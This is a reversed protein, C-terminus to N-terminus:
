PGAPLAYLDLAGPAMPSHHVRNTAAQSRTERANVPAGTNLNRELRPFSSSTVHLRLRHGTPVRYAISRLDITIAYARGPEALAPRTMGDRYRLRLAGEQINTSTGDPRVHALRAVFDTDPASTSVTLRVRLPGAIRLDDSLPDSTYVLVDRRAEVDRQDRPGPREAPDGTCCIPGGRSPVPDSPDYVFTDHSEAVPPAPSLRGDGGAGNAHGGSSLHWSTARAQPPPWSPADIWRNEGLMFFRFGASPEAPAPAGRLWHAFWDRYWRELPTHANAIPLEGFQYLGSEWGTHGCHDGPGVVVRHTAFGAPDLKRWSEALALTDGVTQDGWTNLVLAPTTPRDSADLFGLESWRADGPPLALYDDFGNPAPRVDQVLSAVPLRKLHAALDFARAPAAGPSKAGHEVFWGFGSALQLVGGEFVGFYGHRDAAAGVAGGSGSPIMAKLAPHRTRALTWQTEGLASCGFTGVRGNSWPQAVIWDLTATGDSAADRWPLLEGESDGTGRLDQVLVVYGERAFHLAWRYAGPFRMRHYPLRILIAPQRGELAAPRYLSARLRQGDPMAITVGHDVAIEDRWAVLAIRWAHPVLATARGRWAPVALVTMAGAVLLGAMVAVIALPTTM